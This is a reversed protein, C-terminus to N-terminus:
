AFFRPIAWNRFIALIEVPSKVSASVAIEPSRAAPKDAVLM